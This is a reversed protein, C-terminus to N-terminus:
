NAPHVGVVFKSFPSSKPTTESLDGIKEALELNNQDQINKDQWWRKTWVVQLNFQESSKMTSLITEIKKREVM